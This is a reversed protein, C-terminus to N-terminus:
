VMRLVWGSTLGSLTGSARRGKSTIETRKTLMQSSVPCGRLVLEAEPGMMQLAELARGDKIPNESVNLTKLETHRRFVWVPEGGEEEAPSEKLDDFYLPSERKEKADGPSPAAKAKAKAKAKEVAEAQAQQGKVHEQATKLGADDLIQCNFPGCIKDLGKDTIRNRGLGIYELGRYEEAASALLEACRDCLFNDWLNLMRLNWPCQKLTNVLPALELRGIGCARLSLGELICDPEVFCALSAGVADDVGERVVEEPLAELARRLSTLSIVGESGAYDPGDLVEFASVIQSGTIGLRAEMVGQFDCSNLPVDADGAAELAAFAAGFDGDFLDTLHEKFGLLIRQSQKLYRCRERAELDYHKASPEAPEAPEPAAPATGDASEGAAEAAAAERKAAEEAELEEASPLPVELPNWEIQLMEVSSEAALGKRLLHLMEVDLRCDSFVLVKINKAAPLLLGLLHASIRDLLMSRVSLVADETEPSVPVPPPPPPEPPELQRGANSQRRGGFASVGGEAAAAAAAASKQASAASGRRGLNVAPDTQGKSGRRQLSPPKVVKVKAKLGPHPVAGVTSCLKLYDERMTLCRKFDAPLAKPGELHDNIGYVWVPLPRKPGTDAPETKAAEEQPAAAAKKPPMAHEWVTKSARAGCRAFLVIPPVHGQAL